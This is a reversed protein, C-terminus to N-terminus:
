ALTWQASRLPTLHSRVRKRQEPLAASNSQFSPVRAMVRMLQAFALAYDGQARHCRRYDRVACAGRGLGNRHWPGGAHPWRRGASAAPRCPASRSDCLVLPHCDQSAPGRTRPQKAVCARRSVVIYVPVGADALFAGCLRLEDEGSVQLCVKKQGFKQWHAIWAASRPQKMAREFAGLTAHGCQAGIKGKGMKLDKRVILLMKCRLEDEESSCSDSDSDSGDSDAASAEAAAAAASSGATVEALPAPGAAADTQTAPEGAGAVSSGTGDADAALAPPAEEPKANAGTPAESGASGLLAASKEGRAAAYGRCLAPVMIGAALGAGIVAGGALWMADRGNM